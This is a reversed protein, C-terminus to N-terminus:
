FLATDDAKPAGRIPEIEAYSKDSGDDAKNWSVRGRLELGRGGPILFEAAFDPDEFDAPKLGKAKMDALDVGAAGLIKALRWGAEDSLTIMEGAEREEADAYIVMMQPDNKRSRFAVGNNKAHLVRAIRLMVGEPPSAPIPVARANKQSEGEWDYGM